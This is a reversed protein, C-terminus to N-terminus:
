GLLVVEVNLLSNGVTVPWAMGASKAPASVLTAIRHQSVSQSSPLNSLVAGFGHNFFMKLGTRWCPGHADPVIVVHGSEQARRFAM